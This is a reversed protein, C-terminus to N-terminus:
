HSLVGSPKLNTLTVERGNVVLLDQQQLFAFLRSVTELSLGLCAAIDGRTMPLRFSVPSLKQRKYRSSMHVLFAFLRNAATKQGRLMTMEQEQVIQRSQIENFHKQLAPQTACLSELADYPIECISTDQLAVISSSYHKSYLGDLGMVEGPMFFSVALQNGDSDVVYSKVFGSKIIFLSEFQDYQRYLHWNKKLPKPLKTIASLQILGDASLNKSLCSSLFRCGSCSVKDLNSHALVERKSVFTGALIALKNQHESQVSSEFKSM